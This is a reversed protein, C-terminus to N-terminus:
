YMNVNGLAPVGRWRQRYVLGLAHCGEKWEALSGQGLQSRTHPLRCSGDQDAKATATAVVLQNDPHNLAVHVRPGPPGDGQKVERRRLSHTASHFCTSIVTLCSRQPGPPLQVWKTIKWSSFAVLVIKRWPEEHQVTPGGQDNRGEPHDDVKGSLGVHLAGVTQYVRLFGFHLGRRFHEVLSM